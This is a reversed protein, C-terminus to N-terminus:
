VEVEKEDFMKLSDLPLIEQFGQKLANMQTAIRQVFRYNIVLSILLCINILYLNIKIDKSL